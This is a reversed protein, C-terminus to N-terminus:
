YKVSELPPLLQLAPNIFSYRLGVTPKLFTVSYNTSSKNFLVQSVTWRDAIYIM